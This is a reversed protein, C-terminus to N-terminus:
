LLPRKVADRIIMFQNPTKLLPAMASHSRVDSARQPECKPATFGMAVQKPHSVPGRVVDNCVIRGRLALTVSM